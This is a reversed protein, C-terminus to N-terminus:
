SAITRATSVRWRPKSTATPREGAVLRSASCSTGYRDIADKSANVVEPHGNLGLYDYSSFNSLTRNGILTDPGARREHVRFFPNELGIVAAFSRQTQTERYGPLTTFDTAGDPIPTPAVVIPRPASANARRSKVHAFLTARDSDSLRGSGDDSM